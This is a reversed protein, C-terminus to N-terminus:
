PLSPSSGTHRKLDEMLGDTISDAVKYRRCCHLCFDSPGWLNERTSRARRKYYYLLKLYIVEHASLETPVVMSHSVVHSLHRGNSHVTNTDSRGGDENELGPTSVLSSPTWMGPTPRDRVSRHVAASPLTAHTKVNTLKHDWRLRPERAADVHQCVGDQSAQLTFRSKSSSVGGDRNLDDLPVRLSLSELAQQLDTARLKDNLSCTSKPTDESGATSGSRQSLDSSLRSDGLISLDDPSGAEPELPSATDRAM